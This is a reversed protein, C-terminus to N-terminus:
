LGEDTINRCGQVNIDELYPCSRALNYMAEDGIHPCGKSIFTTLKKCGQSLASVGSQTMLECWSINVSTLNPCGHGIARLSNDTLNSCSSINLTHLKACNSALSHITKDSLKNCTSLNLTEINCCYTSFSCLASDGVNQCGKLSLSKLFGGCRKALNEVVTGEIDVQFEFLDVKQWNSGDLALVNWPKSVQASRCLSIIDLYSFVRLLLERPLRRNILAEDHESFVRTIKWQTVGMHVPHGNGNRSINNENNRHKRGNGNIEIGTSYKVMTTISLCHRIQQPYREKDSSTRCRKTLSNIGM